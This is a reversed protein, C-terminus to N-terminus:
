NAIEHTTLFRTKEPSVENCGVLITFVQNRLTPTRGRSFTAVMLATATIEWPKGWGCTPAQQGLRLLISAVAM